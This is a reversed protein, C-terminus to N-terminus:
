RGRKLVTFPNPPLDGFHMKTQEESELRRDNEVARHVAFGMALGLLSGIEAGIVVSKGKIKESSGARGAAVAAAGVLAGTVGGLQLSQSQTACSTCLILCAFASLSKV